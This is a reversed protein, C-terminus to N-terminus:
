FPVDDDAPPVTAAHRTPVKAAVNGSPKYKKIKNKDPFQGDGEEKTLEVKFGSGIHAGAQFQGAKFEADKGIAKALQAIKFTCAPVVVYDTMTRERGQPSYVTITWKEMENGSSQSVTEEVNTLVADYDADPWVSSADKPNYKLM